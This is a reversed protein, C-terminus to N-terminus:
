FRRAREVKGIVKALHLGGEKLDVIISRHEPNLPSLIVTDDRLEYKKVGSEGTSDVMYHVIDGSKVPVTDCIIYDGDSILTEMSDGDALVAYSTTTFMEEPIMKFEDACEFAETPIGCSANGCIPVYRRPVHIEDDTIYQPDVRFIKSMEMVMEAPFKRDGSLYRSLTPPQMNNLRKALEKNKMKFDVMLKRIKDSASM